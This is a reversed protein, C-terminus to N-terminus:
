RKFFTTRECSSNCLKDADLNWRNPSTTMRSTRTQNTTTRMQNTTTRTKLSTRRMKNTQPHAMTMVLSPNCPVLCSMPDIVDFLFDVVLLPRCRRSTPTCPDLASGTFSAVM